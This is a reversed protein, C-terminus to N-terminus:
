QYTIFSHGQLFLDHREFAQNKKVSDATIVMKRIRFPMLRSERCVIAAILMGTLEKLHPTM